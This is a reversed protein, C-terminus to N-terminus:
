MLFPLLNMGMGLLQNFQNRNAAAGGGYLNALNSGMGGFAGATGGAGQMGMNLLSNLSQGYNNGIGLINQLFQQQDKSSIDNAMNGAERMHATSGALGGASAANKAARESQGMQFRANPSMTYKSMTDEMFKHPDKFQEGWQKFPDIAGRGADLFPKWAGQAQRMYEEMRKAAEDYGESGGGFLNGIMGFPDLAKGMGGDFIGM